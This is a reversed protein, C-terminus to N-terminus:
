QIRGLPEDDGGIVGHYIRRFIRVMDSSIPRIAVPRQADGSEQFFRDSGTGYTQSIQGADLKIALRQPSCLQRWYEGLKAAIIRLQLRDDILQCRPIELQLAIAHRRRQKLDEVHLHDSSGQLVLNALFIDPTTKAGDKEILQKLLGFILPPIVGCGVRYFCAIVDHQQRQLIRDCPELFVQAPSHRIPRPTSDM